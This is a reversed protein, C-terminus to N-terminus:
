FGLKGAHAFRNPADKIAFAIFLSGIGDLIELSIVGRSVDIMLGHDPGHTEFLPDGGAQDLSEEGDERLDNFERGGLYGRDGSGNGRCGNGDRPDIETWLDGADGGSGDCGELFRGGGAPDTDEGNEHSHNGEEEEKEGPDGHRHVDAVGGFHLHDFRDGLGSHLGDGLIM